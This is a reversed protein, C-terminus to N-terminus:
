GLAGKQVNSAFSQGCKKMIVQYQFMSEEDTLEGRNQKEQLAEIEPMIEKEIENSKKNLFEMEKLAALELDSPPQNYKSFQNKAEALTKKKASLDLKYESELKEIIQEQKEINQFFGHAVRSVKVAEQKLIGRDLPVGFQPTVFVQSFNWKALRLAKFHNKQEIEQAKLESELHAQPPKILQPAEPTEPKSSEAVQAQSSNNVGEAKRGRIKVLVLLSNWWRRINETFGKLWSKKAPSGCFSISLHKQTQM